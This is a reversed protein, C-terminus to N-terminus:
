EIGKIKEYLNNIIIMVVKDRIEQRSGTLNLKNVELDGNISIGIYVLGVPDGTPGANGTTSLGINSNSLKAINLAMEGAVNPSVDTYKDLTEKLVNLRKIKADISYAVIGEKFVSSAGAVGVISSSLLGGTLSEATAITMKNEKLIKVIRNIKDM